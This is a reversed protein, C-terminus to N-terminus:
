ALSNALQLSVVVWVLVNAATLLPVPLWLGLGGPGGSLTMESGDGGM